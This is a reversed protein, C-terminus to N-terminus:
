CGTERKWHESEAGGAPLGRSAAPAPFNFGLESGGCGPVFCPFLALLYVRKGGFGRSDPDSRALGPVPRRPSPARDVGQRRNGQVDRSSWNGGPGLHVEPESIRLWPIRFRPAAFFHGHFPVRRASCVMRCERAGAAGAENEKMLCLAQRLQAWTGRGGPRECAGCLGRLEFLFIQGLRRPQSAWAGPVGACRGRSRSGPRAGPAREAGWQAGERPPPYPDRRALALDGAADSGSRVEVRESRPLSLSM